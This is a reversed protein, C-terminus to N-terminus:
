FIESTPCRGCSQSGEHCFGGRYECEPIMRKALELDVLCVGERIARMTRQTEIHPRRCLRRRSMDILSKANCRMAHNITTWRNADRDGGWDERNSLVYHKIGATHRVFHVSVFTYINYMKVWFLQTYIPSHENCYMQAPTANSPKGTTFWCAEQLLAETTLKEVTVKM